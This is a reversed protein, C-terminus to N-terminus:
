EERLAAVPDIAAARRAPVLCAVLAVALLVAAAAAFTRPDTAEIGFLLSKLFRSLLIAVGLGLGVGLAVVRLGQGVVLGVVRTPEGGLAIRIGIDKGHQQVFFATVGYVGVVSLLLAVAAFCAVLWSLTRPVELADAALEDLTATESLPVTPDLAQVVQRVAPLVSAPDGATRIVLYRFRQDPAMPVYVTGPDPQDLGLYKVPTVVGVM